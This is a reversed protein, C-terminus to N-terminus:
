KAGGKVIRARLVNVRAMRLEHRARRLAMRRVHAARRAASKRAESRRAAMHRRVAAARRDNERRFEAIADARASRRERLATRRERERRSPLLLAAVDGTADFVAALAMGLAFVVCVFVVVGAILGIFDM